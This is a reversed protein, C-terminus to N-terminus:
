GAPSELLQLTVGAAGSLDIYVKGNPQNYVAPFPPILVDGTTAPITYTRDEIDQGDVTGPIQATVTVPNSDTNKVRLWRYPSNVYMHGQANGPNPLAAALSLGARTVPTPTLDTRAM